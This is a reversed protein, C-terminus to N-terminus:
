GRAPRNWPARALLLALGCWGSAGAIALMAGFLGAAYFGPTVGSLGLITGALVLLGVIMQVQRMISVGPAAGGTVALGAARWAEIGGELNLVTGALGARAAACAQAGRMGRQCQFIVARDAPLPANALSATLGGLPISMALPIHGARFEDADRVDILVAEGRTLMASAAIPSISQTESMM